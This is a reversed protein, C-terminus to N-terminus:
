KQLLETAKKPTNEQELILTTTYKKHQKSSLRYCTEKMPSLLPILINKYGLLWERNERVGETTTARRITSIHNKRRKKKKMQMKERSGHKAHNMCFSVELCPGACPVMLGQQTDIVQKNTPPIIDNNNVPSFPHPSSSFEDTQTTLKSPSALRHVWATISSSDLWLYAGFSANIM